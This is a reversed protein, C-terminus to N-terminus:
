EDVDFKIITENGKPTSVTITVIGSRTSSPSSDTIKFQISSTGSNTTDRQTYSTTGTLSGVTSTVRVTTNIPLPQGHIDSFNVLIDGEGGVIVLRNQQNLNEDAYTTLGDLSTAEINAYSDSIVLVFSRSINLSTQASCRSSDNCLNGNYDPDALDYIFNGNFDSFFEGSDHVGNQNDDRFVEPLQATITEGDSLYGDGNQDAFSEVGQTYALVTARYDAPRPNGSIWTVSCRGSTDTNCSSGISGGETTFFIPTGAPPPNNYIDALQATVTVTEGNYRWAEINHKDPGLTFSDDDPLGASIVLGTSQTSISNSDVTATINVVSPISGSQVVTKVYGNSDSTATAPSFTIGGATGNISFTVGVGGLPQSSTGLVQFILESTEQLGAGGGGLLTISDPSASIFNITGAQQSAVNLSGTATFSAGGFDATATITDTGVCGNAQYTSAAVGASTVVTEDVSALPTALASCISSFSVAIPSTFTAGNSDVFYARVSTTGSASLNSAGIELQGSVFNAGSDDGFQIAPSLVAYNLSDSYDDSGLSATVTLDDAGLDSLFQLTSSANGSSDTLVTAPNATALTTSITVVANPVSAGDQDAVHILIYGSQVATISAIDADTSNPGDKLQLSVTLSTATTVSGGSGGSGGAPTITDDESCGSLGLAAVLFFCLSIFKIIKM